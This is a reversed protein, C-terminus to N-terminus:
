ARLGEAGTVVGTKGSITIGRERYTTRSKGDIERQHNWTRAAIERLTEFQHRPVKYTLGHYFRQNFNISIYPCFEPLDITIDVLDDALRNGTTMGAEARLRDMEAELIQAKAAKKRELAVRKRADQRTAEIEEPTLVDSSVDIEADTPEVQDKDKAM